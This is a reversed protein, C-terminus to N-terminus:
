SWQESKSKNWTYNWNEIRFELFRLPNKSDFRIKLIEYQFNPTNRSGISELSIAGLFSKGLNTRLSGPFILHVCERNAPTSRSLDLRGHPSYQHLWTYIWRSDKLYRNIQEPRAPFGAPHVAPQGNWNVFMVCQLVETLEYGPIWAKQSQNVNKKESSKSM